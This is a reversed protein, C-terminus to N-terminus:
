KEFAVGKILFKATGQEAGKKVTVNAVWDGGMTFVGEGAYNGPRVEKLVVRNEGMPHDMELDITATAGSLGENKETLIMLTFKTKVLNKPKDTGIDLSFRFPGEQSVRQPGTPAAPAGPGGGPASAQEPTKNEAAPNCGAALVALLVAAAGFIANKM